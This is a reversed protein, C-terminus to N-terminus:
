SASASSTETFIAPFGEIRSGSRRAIEALLHDYRPPLYISNEKLTLTSWLLSRRIVGNKAPGLVHFDEGEVQASLVWQENLMSLYIRRRKPWVTGKASFVM